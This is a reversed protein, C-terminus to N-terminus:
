EPTAEAPACQELLARAEYLDPLEFGETFWAYVEPLLGCAAAGKGQRQWLRGLSVAARLELLRAGQLRAIGRAAEFCREAQEEGDLGTAAQWELLVAGKLRYLEANMWSVERTEIEELAKDLVQLAQEFQGMWAHAEALRLTLFPLSIRTGEAQWRSVGAYLQTVGAEARSQRVRLWGQVASAWVQISSIRKETALQLLEEIQQGVVGDARYLVRQSIEGFALAFGLELPESSQRALKVAERSFSLAQDLFGQIGLSLSKWLLLVIRPNVHTLTRHQEPNYCALALELHEGAQRLEGLFLRCEGAILHGVVMQAPDLGPSVLNLFQEGLRLAERVQGQGIYSDCIMYFIHLNLLSAASAGTQQCLKFARALADKREQSGWGKLVLNSLGCKLLLDIEQLMRKESRGDAPPATQLLALGRKFLVMAEAHASLQVARNGARILCDVAKDVIGAAEFHYALQPALLELESAAGAYLSELANGVAEHLYVREVPDLRQYLYKQYLCHQFRFSTIRQQDLRQLTLPQVIHHEKNLAGSLRQVLSRAEYGSVQAVVEAAFEDGVVSAITLLSQIKRPLRAIREAVVAEVRAPLKEWDLSAGACWRGAEDRTLDGREQLGRLLEVTFLPHGHTHKYLTQRFATDLCNPQADLYSTVFDRGDAQDLDIPFNGFLKQFENIVAELAHRTKERDPLIEDPRFAGVILIRSGELRRGLHFLLSISGSDAWQLDDLFLILPHRRALAQLMRTVQEFLHVQELPSRAEKKASAEVREALSALLAVQEPLYTQARLALIRGPLLVEILDPGVDLLTQLVAPFAALLRGGNPADVLESVRWADIDCSLINLIDRFPLYPDGLGSYATCRGGALLLAPYRAVAQRGFENMLFTKGSGTDGRVFMVQGKGALTTELCRNLRALERQRSVCSVPAVQPLSEPLLGGFGLSNEEAPRRLKGDRIQEYLWSTEQAPPVGLEKQLIARCVRFQELAASRKGSLALLRMLQQHAEEHWPELDLQRRAYREAQEYQGTKEFITALSQLAFQMERAFYERKVLMWEEFLESGSPTFGELFSGRYLQIADQLTKVMAQRDTPSHLWDGAGSAIQRCAAMHQEFATVDLKHDSATNFQITDRTINFLPPTRTADGLSQRLASLEHRLNGLATRPSSNPWLLGIVAERSHVRDAEVALYALLARAKSTKFAVVKQELLVQFPGMMSLLIAPM